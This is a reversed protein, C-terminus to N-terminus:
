AAVAAYFDAAHDAVGLLRAASRLPLIYKEVTAIDAILEDAVGDAFSAIAGALDPTAATELRVEALRAAPSTASPPASAGDGSGDEYLALHIKTGGVDGALIM